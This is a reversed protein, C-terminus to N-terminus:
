KKMSQNLDLILIKSKFNRPRIIKKAIRKHLVEKVWKEKPYSCFPMNNFIAYYAKFDFVNYNEKGLYKLMEQVFTIINKKGSSNQTTFWSPDLFDYAYYSIYMKILKSYQDLKRKEDFTSWEEAMYQLMVKDENNTKLCHWYPVEIIRGLIQMLSFESLLRIGYDISDQIMFDGGISFGNGMIYLSFSGGKQDQFILLTNSSYGLPLLTNFQKQVANLDLTLVKVCKNTDYSTGTDTAGKGNGITADLSSNMYQYIVKDSETIAGEIGISQPIIDGINTEIRARSIASFDEVETDIFRLYKYAIPSSQIKAAATLILRKIRAPIKKDTTENELPYIGVFLPGELFLAADRGFNRLPFEYKTVNSYIQKREKRSSIYRKGEKHVNLTSACSSIFLSLFSLFLVINILRKTVIGKM